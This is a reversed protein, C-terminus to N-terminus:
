KREQYHYQFIIRAYENPQYLSKKFYYSFSVNIQNHLEAVHYNLAFLDNDILIDQPVYDTSYGELLPIISIFTEKKSTIM